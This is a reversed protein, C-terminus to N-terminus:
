EAQMEAAVREVERWVRSLNLWGIKEIDPETYGRALLEAVLNPYMSVDKLGEPLSDGVGEFDSGFGVHDIGALEVVLDIHDAVDAVKAYPFPNAERYREAFAKAEESGRFAGHEDMYHTRERDYAEYWENAVRTLFTSGFNILVVGGNEGVTQIMDDDLNREFGPTFRRCSSHSAIVPARVLAMVQWFADDSVHSIDVMVGMRNMAGVLERGFDSLGHWTRTSDYSSDCIHNDTAHTLTIYRIGRGYFHALKSLDGEIPSGNELGMCLSVVGRRFGAEVEDPSRAMAFRNPHARAIAEVEDILSDALVAATGEAERESPVFISMFPADLGGAKAREYDFDGSETRVSVDVWKERLRYPVDVHGDAIIMGRALRTAREQATPPAPACGATVLVAVCACCLKAPRM